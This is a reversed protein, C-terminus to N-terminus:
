TPWGRGKQYITWENLAQRFLQVMRDCWGPGKGADGVFIIRGGPGGENDHAFWKVQRGYTRAIREFKRDSRRRNLFVCGEETADLGEGCLSALAAVLKRRNPLTDERCEIHGDPESM